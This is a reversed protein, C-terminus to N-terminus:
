KRFCHFNYYYRKMLTVAVTIQEWETREILKDVKSEFLRMLLAVNSESYMKRKLIVPIRDTEHM